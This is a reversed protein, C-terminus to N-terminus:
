YEFFNRSVFLKWTLCMLSLISWACNVAFRLALKNRKFGTINASTIRTRPDILCFFLEPTSRIGKESLRVKGSVTISM